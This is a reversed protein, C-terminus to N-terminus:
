NNDQALNQAATTRMQGVAGGTGGPGIWAYMLYLGCFTLIVLMILFESSAQGKKNIAIVM